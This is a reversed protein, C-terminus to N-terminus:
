SKDLLKLVCEGFKETGKQYGIEECEAKYPALTDKIPKNIPKDTAKPIAMKGSAQSGTLRELDRCLKYEDCSEQAYELRSKLIRSTKVCGFVSMVLENGESFCQGSTKQKGDRWGNKYRSYSKRGDRATYTSTGHIRGGKFPLVLQLKGTPWYNRQKGEQKGNEFTVESKVQPEKGLDSEYYSAFEGDRKGDKLKYDSELSGSPYYIKIVETVADQRSCEVTYLSNTKQKIHECTEYAVAQEGAIATHSLVIILVSIKLAIIKNM